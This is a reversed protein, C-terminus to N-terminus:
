SATPLNNSSNQPTDMNAQSATSSNEGTLLPHHQLSKKVENEIYERILPEGSAIASTLAGLMHAAETQTVVARLLLIPGTVLVEKQIGEDDIITSRKALFDSKDKLLRYVVKCIQDWKKQNFAEMLGSEGGCIRVMEVRDELNPTRLEYDKQQSSLYFKATEPILDSLEM